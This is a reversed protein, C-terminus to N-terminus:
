LATMKRPSTMLHPRGHEMDLKGLGLLEGELLTAHHANPKSGMDPTKFALSGVIDEPTRGKRVQKELDALTEIFFLPTINCLFFNDLWVAEDLNLCQLASKDFILIPGM